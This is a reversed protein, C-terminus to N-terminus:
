NRRLYEQRRQEAIEIERKPIKQTKKAFAHNLVILNGKQFFGLIRFINNGMQIRVEWIESTNKLKKFYQKPIVALDEILKLVWVVKQAQKGSLSDLFEEVPCNNSETKYFHIKRM